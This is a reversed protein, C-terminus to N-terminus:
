ECSPMFEKGLLTSPGELACLARAPAPLARTSDPVAAAPRATPLPRREAAVPSSRLAGEANWGLLVSPAGLAPVGLFLSWRSPLVEGAPRLVGHQLHVRSTAHVM